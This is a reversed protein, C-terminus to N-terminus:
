FLGQCDPCVGFPNDKREFPILIDIDPSYIQIMEQIYLFETRILSYLELLATSILPSLNYFCGEMQDM